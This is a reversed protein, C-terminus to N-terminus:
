LVSQLEQFHPPNIGYHPPNKEIAAAARTIKSSKYPSAGYLLVAPHAFKKFEAPDGLPEAGDLGDVVDAELDLLALEEGEEARAAAALRGHQPDGGAELPGVGAPDEQVAPVDGFQGGVLALDVGDELAVGEEGVHGDAVVDGEAQDDGLPGAASISRSTPAMSLSM